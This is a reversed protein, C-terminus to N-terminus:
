SHSTGPGKKARCFFSGRFQRGSWFTHFDVYIFSGGERGEGGRKVISTNGGILLLHYLSFIICLHLTNTILSLYKYTYITTYITSWRLPYSITYIYIYDYITSWRLPYSISLTHTTLYCYNKNQISGMVAVKNRTIHIPYSTQLAITILRMLQREARIFATTRM